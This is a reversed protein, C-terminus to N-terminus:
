EQPSKSPLVADCAGVAGIIGDAIQGSAISAALDDVMKTWAGTPALAHTAHDALIEVYREGLSVFILIRRHEKGHGIQHAAFERHALSRAHARKIRHPVLALRIPLIDLIVITAVLVCLEIFILKRGSLAPSASIALGGAVLAALAAGGITFLSYRDSIRTIVVAMKAGTRHEVASASDRIRQHDELSLPGRM